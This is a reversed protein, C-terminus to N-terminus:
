AYKCEDEDESMPDSSQNSATMNVTAQEAAKRRPRTSPTPPTQSAPSSPSRRDRKRKGNRARPPSPPTAPSGQINALSSSEGVPIDHFHLVLSSVVM